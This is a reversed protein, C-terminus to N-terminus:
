LSSKFVLALLVCIATGLNVGVAYFTLGAEGRVEGTLVNVEFM